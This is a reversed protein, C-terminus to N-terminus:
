HSTTPPPQPPMPRSLRQMFEHQWRQMGAVFAARVVFFVERKLASSGYSNLHDLQLPDGKEAEQRIVDGVERIITTKTAQDLSGNMSLDFADAPYLGEKCQAIVRQKEELEARAGAPLNPAQSIALTIKLLEDWLLPHLLDDPQAYGYRRVFDPHDAM